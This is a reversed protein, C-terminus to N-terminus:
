EKEPRVYILKGEEEVMEIFANGQERMRVLEEPTYVLLDVAGTEAPLSAMAELSREIFGLNSEKVMVLDIDSLSDQEGRAWSGFLYIKAPDL